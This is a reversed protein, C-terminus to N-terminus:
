YKKLNNILQSSYLPKYFSYASKQEDVEFSAKLRLFLSHGNKAKLTDLIIESMGIAFTDLFDDKSRVLYQQTLEYTIQKGVYNEFFIGESTASVNDNEFLDKNLSFTLRNMDAVYRNREKFDLMRESLIAFIMFVLGIVIATIVMSFVVELVSFGKINGQRDIM